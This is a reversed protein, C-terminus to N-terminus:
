DFKQELECQFLFNAASETTSISFGISKSLKTDVSVAASFKFSTFPSQQESGSDCSTTYDWFRYIIIYNLYTLLLLLFTILVFTSNLIFVM